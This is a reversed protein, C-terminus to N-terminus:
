VEVNDIRRELRDLEHVMTDLMISDDVERIMMELQRVTVIVDATEGALEELTARGQMHKLIADQLEGLEEVVKIMQHVKGKKEIIRRCLEDLGLSSHYM